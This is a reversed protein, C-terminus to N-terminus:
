KPKVIAWPRPAHSEQYRVVVLPTHKAMELMEWTVGTLSVDLNGAMEWVTRGAGFGRARSALEAIDLAEQVDIRTGSIALPTARKRFRLSRGFVYGAVGKVSRIGGITRSRPSFHFNRWSYTKDTDVIMVAVDVRLREKLCSRITKATRPAEDLPLSVYSYPLNSGDIGGESGHALAQLFGCQRLVVQKHASGERIPYNKFHLITKNRMHCIPGLVYAWVFRMWFRSLFRATLSPKVSSEDVVNNTATSVAKESVVIIDGKRIKGKLARVIEDIYDDNPKWYRTRVVLFKHRIM